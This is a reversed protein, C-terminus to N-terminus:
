HVVGGDWQYNADLYRVPEEKKRGRQAVVKRCKEQGQRGGGCLCWIREKPSTILGEGTRRGFM